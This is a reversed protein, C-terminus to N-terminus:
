WDGRRGGLNVSFGFSTVARDLGPVNSRFDLRRALFALGLSRVLGISFGGGYALVDDRRDPAGPLAVVFDMTGSEVFANLSSRTGVRLRSSVGARDDLAYGWADEISYVLGRRAYLFSSLRAETGIGLELGGTPEAFAVFSSGPEPDLERYAAELRLYHNPRDLRVLLLPATGSNSRDLAPDATDFEVQTREVGLGVSWDRPLRWRLGGRLYTADRDLRDLPAEEPSEILSSLRVLEGSAFVTMHGTAAVQVGVQGREWRQHVPEPVEPSGLRQQQDREALAEVAMRNWFGFVGLGYRGNVTRKDELKQWGVYEPLVHAAWVVKPGNRLYARLGAGVTGTLDSVEEGTPSGFANDVYRVDYVGFWPKVRVVGLRWPAEEVAREIQEKREEPRDTPGGPEMYQDFQGVAPAAGAGLLALSAALLRTARPLRRRAPGRGPALLDPHTM